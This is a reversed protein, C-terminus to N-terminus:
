TGSVSISHLLTRPVERCVQGFSALWVGLGTPIWTRSCGVVQMEEKGKEGKSGEIKFVSSCQINGTPSPNSHPAGTFDIRLTEYVYHNKQNNAM